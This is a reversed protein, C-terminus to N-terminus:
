DIVGGSGWACDFTMLEGNCDRSRVRVVKESGRFICEEEGVVIEGEIGRDSCGRRWRSPFDAIIAVGRGCM